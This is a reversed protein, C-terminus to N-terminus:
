GETLTTVAFSINDVYAGPDSVATSSANRVEFTVIRLGTFSAPLVAHVMNSYNAGVEPNTQYQPVFDFVANTTPAVTTDDVPFGNVIM